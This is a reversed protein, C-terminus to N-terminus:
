FFFFVVFYFLIFLDFKWVNFSNGDSGRTRWDFERVIDTHGNYSHAPSASNDLSWLLLSNDVQQQPPPITATIAGNGFPQSLFFFSYKLIYISLSLSLLLVFLYGSHYKKANKKIIAIMLFGWYNYSVTFRARWIPSNVQM